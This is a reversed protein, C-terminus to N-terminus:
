AAEWLVPRLSRRLAKMGKLQLQRVRERSIGLQEGVEELSKGEARERVAIRQREPKLRQLARHTLAELQEKALVEDAPAQADALVDIPAPKDPDKKSRDIPVVRHSRMKGTRQDWSHPAAGASELAIGKALRARMWYSAYTVFASRGPIFKRIADMVGIRCLQVAEPFTMTPPLQRARRRATWLCLREMSAFVRAQAARDGGRAALVDSDPIVYRSLVAVG